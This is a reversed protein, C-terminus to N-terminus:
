LSQSVGYQSFAVTKGAKIRFKAEMTFILDQSLFGGFPKVLSLPAGSWAAKQIGQYGAGSESDLELVALFSTDVGKVSM